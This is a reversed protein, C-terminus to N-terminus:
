ESDVEKAEAIMANICADCPSDSTCYTLPITTHSGVTKPTGIHGKADGRILLELHRMSHDYRRKAQLLESV